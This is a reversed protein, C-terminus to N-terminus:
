RGLATMYFVSEREADLDLLENAEAVNFGFLPCSKIDLMSCSLLLNQTVHGAEVGFMDYGFDDYKVLTRDWCASIIFIVSADKSWEYRLVKENFYSSTDKEFLKELSHKFIDYHYVGPDIHLVRNIVVYVELPYRAGGSPYFRRTKNIEDQTSESYIGIPANVGASYYLLTSLESESVM